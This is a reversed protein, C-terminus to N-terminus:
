GEVDAYVVGSCHGGVGLLTIDRFRYPCRCLLIPFVSSLSPSYVVTSPSLGRKDNEVGVLLIPVIHRATVWLDSTPHM